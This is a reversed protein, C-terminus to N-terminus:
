RATLVARRPTALTRTTDLIGTVAFAAAILGVVPPVPETVGAIHLALAIIGFWAATAFIAIIRGSGSRQTDKIPVLRWSGTFSSWAETPSGRPARRGRRRRRRGPLVADTGAGPITAAVALARRALASASVDPSAQASKRPQGWPAPDAALRSREARWLRALETGAPTLRDKWFIALLILPLVVAAIAAFAVVHSQTHHKSMESALVTAAVGAAEVCAAVLAPGLGIPVTRRCTGNNRAAIRLAQEFPTWTGSVDVQCTHALVFFPAWGTNTLRGHVADLVQQEYAELTGEAMATGQAPYGLWIGAADSRATLFGRAALDLVTAEYAAAGPRCRSLVFQVLAPRVIVQNPPATRRAPVTWRPSGLTIMGALAILGLIVIPVASM